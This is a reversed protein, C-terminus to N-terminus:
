LVGKADFPTGPDCCEDEDKELDKNSNRKKEGREKCSVFFEFLPSSSHGRPPFL